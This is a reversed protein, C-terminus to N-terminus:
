DERSCQHKSGVVAVYCIALIEQNEHRKQNTINNHNNSVKEAFWM